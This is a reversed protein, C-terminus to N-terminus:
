EKLNEKCWKKSNVAFIKYDEEYLRFMKNTKICM